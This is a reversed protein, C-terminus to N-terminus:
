GDKAIKDLIEKPVCVKTGEPPLQGIPLQDFPVCGGDFKSWDFNEEKPQQQATQRVSHSLKPAFFLGVLVFLILATKLRRSVM